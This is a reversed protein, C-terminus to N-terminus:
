IGAAIYFLLFGIFDLSIGIAVGDVVAYIRWDWCCM